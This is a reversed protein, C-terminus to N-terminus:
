YLLLSRAMEVCSQMNKSKSFTLGTDFCAWFPMMMTMMTEKKSSFSEARHIYKKHSFIHSFRRRWVCLAKLSAIIRHHLGSAWLMGILFSIRYTAKCSANSSLTFTFAAYTHLFPPFLSSSLACHSHSHDSSHTYILKKHSIIKQYFLWENGMEYFHINRKKVEFHGPVVPSCLM